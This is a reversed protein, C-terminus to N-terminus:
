FHPTTRETTMFTSALGSGYQILNALATNVQSMNKVNLVAAEQVPM